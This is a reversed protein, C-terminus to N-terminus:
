HEGQMNKLSSSSNDQLRAEHWHFNEYIKWLVIMGM